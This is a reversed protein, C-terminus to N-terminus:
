YYYENDHYIWFWIAILLACDRILSGWWFNFQPVTNGHQQGASGSVVFMPQWCQGLQSRTFQLLQSAVLLTCNVISSNMCSNTSIASGHEQVISRRVNFMIQHCRRLRSKKYWGLCHYQKLIQNKIRKSDEITRWHCVLGDRMQIIMKIRGQDHM